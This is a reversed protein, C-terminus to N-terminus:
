DSLKPLSLVQTGTAISDIFMVADAEINGACMNHSVELWRQCAKPKKPVKAKSKRDKLDELEREAKRVSVFEVSFKLKQKTLGGKRSLVANFEHIKGPVKIESLDVLTTGLLQDRGKLHDFPSGTGYTDKDFVELKLSNSSLEKM